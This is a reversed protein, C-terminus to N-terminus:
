RATADSRCRDRHRCVPRRAGRETRAAGAAIPQDPFRQALAEILPELDVAVISADITGGAHTALDRLTGTATMTAGALGGVTLRDVEITGERLRVATDLSEAQLGAIAVPGAKIALDPATASFRNGRQESVFLSAFGVTTFDVAGSDLPRAPDAPRGGPPPQGGRRPVECGRTATRSQRISSARSLTWM